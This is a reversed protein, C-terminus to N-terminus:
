MLLAFPVLMMALAVLFGITFGTPFAASVGSGLKQDRAILQARYKTKEAMQEIPAMFPELATPMGKGFIVEDAM